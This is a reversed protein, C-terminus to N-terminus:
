GSTRRDRERRLLYLLLQAMRQEHVADSPDFAIGFGPGLEHKQKRLWVVHGPLDLEFRTRSKPEEAWVLHVAEGQAPLLGSSVGIGGASVDIATGLFATHDGQVKVELPCPVRLTVRREMGGGTSFDCLTRTLLRQLEIWRAHEFKSLLRTLRLSELDCLEDLQRLTEDSV